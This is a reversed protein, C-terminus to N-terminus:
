QELSYILINVEVITSLKKVERLMKYIIPFGSFYVHGVSYVSVTKQLAYNDNLM